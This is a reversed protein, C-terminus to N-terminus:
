EKIAEIKKSLDNIDTSYQSEIVRTIADIEASEHREKKDKAVTEIEVINTNYTLKLKEVSTNYNEKLIDSDKVYKDTLEKSADASLEDIKRNYESISGRRLLAVKSAIEKDKAAILQDKANQLIEKRSM